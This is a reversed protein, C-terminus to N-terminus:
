LYLRSCKLLLQFHVRLFYGQKLFVDTLLNVFLVRHQLFHLSQLLSVLEVVLLLLPAIDFLFICQYFLNLVQSQLDLIQVLQDNLPVCLEGTQSRDVFGQNCLLGALGANQAFELGLM